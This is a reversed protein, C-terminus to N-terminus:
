LFQLAGVSGSQPGAILVPLLGFGVLSVAFVLGAVAVSLVASSAVVVSM